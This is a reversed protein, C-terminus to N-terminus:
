LRMVIPAHLPGATVASMVLRWKKPSSLMLLLGLLYIKAMRIVPRQSTAGTARCTNLWNMMELMDAFGAFTRVVWQGFGSMGSGETLMTLFASNGTNTIQWCAPGYESVDLVNKWPEPPQPARWRLNAIPPAAYPIDRFIATNEAEVGQVHGLASPVVPSKSDACGALWLTCCVAVAATILRQISM